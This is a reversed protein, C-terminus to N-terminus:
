VESRQKAGNLFVLDKLFYELYVFNFHRHFSPEFKIRESLLQFINHSKTTLVPPRGPLKQSSTKFAWARFGPRARKKKFSGGTLHDQVNTFNLNKHSCERSLLVNISIKVRAQLRKKNLELEELQNQKTVLEHELERLEAIFEIEQVKNEQM